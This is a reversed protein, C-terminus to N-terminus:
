YDSVAVPASKPTEKWVSAALWAASVAWVIDRRLAVFVAGLVNM